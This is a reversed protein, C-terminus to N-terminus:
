HKEICCLENALKRLQRKTLLNVRVSVTGILTSEHYWVDTLFGANFAHIAHRDCDKRVKEMANVMIFEVGSKGILFTLREKSIRKDNLKFTVKM